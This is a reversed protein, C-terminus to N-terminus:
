QQLGLSAPSVVKQAVLEGVAAEMEQSKAPAIRRPAYKIPPSNGTIIHHQVRNICGLYLYGKAFVDAYASLLKQVRATQEPRLCEASRLIRLMLEQLHKPVQNSTFEGNQM